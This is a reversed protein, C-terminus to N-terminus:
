RPPESRTVWLPTEDSVQVYAFKYRKRVRQMEQNHPDLVTDRGQLIATNPWFETSDGVAKWIQLVNSPFDTGDKMVVTLRAADYRGAPTYVLFEHIFEEGEDLWYGPPTM